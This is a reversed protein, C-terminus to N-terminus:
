RLNWLSITDAHRARESSKQWRNQSKMIEEVDMKAAATVPHTVAANMMTAITIIIADEASKLPSLVDVAEKLADSVNQATIQTNKM